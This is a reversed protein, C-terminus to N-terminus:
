ERENSALEKRVKRIEQMADILGYYLLNDSVRAEPHSYSVVHKGSQFEHFWVGRRTMEWKPEDAFDILAHFLDCVVSGCCIVVDPAYIGFQQNLFKSDESAIRELDKNDTTHGGPSKKLNIACISQLADVRRQKSISQHDKWPIEQHLRRIGEVWRTINDWTQARGGKRLFERLDWNGGDPDNVEKLVFMLRPSNVLYRSEDAVGDPVFGDRHAQWERFIEEEKQTITMNVSM